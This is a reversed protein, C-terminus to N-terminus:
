LVLGLPLALLAVGQRLGAGLAAQAGGGAAAGAFVGRLYGVLQGAGAAAAALLVLFGDGLGVAGTLDASAAVQGQRRAEALRRPTPRETASREMLAVGRRG